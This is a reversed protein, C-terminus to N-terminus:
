TRRKLLVAAVTLSFGMLSFYYILDRSDVVGRAINAFHYDIGLYELVSAISTPLFVVVKDLMFLIFMILFSIIFAVVQNETLTSGVIGIALFGGGVLLLGLYGGIIPGVDVKGLFFITILYPLTPILTLAFFSWAALFKGIIIDQDKIPKTLLLEITGVKKEEAITRMTVAPAFFLLLFPTIEFVSRLSAVNQLFLNNTFFWGSLLLFVVIIIYAIPSNFLSHLEKSLIIKVNRM